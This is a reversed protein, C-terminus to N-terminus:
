VLFRMWESQPGKSFLSLSCLAVPLSHGHRLHNTPDPSVLSRLLILVAFMVHLVLLHKEHDKWLMLFSLSPSLLIVSHSVLYSLGSAILTCIFLTARVAVLLLQVLSLSSHEKRVLCFWLCCSRGFLLLPEEAEFEGLDRTLIRATREERKPKM